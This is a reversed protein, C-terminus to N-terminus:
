STRRMIFYTVAIYAVLWSALISAITLPANINSNIFLLGTLLAAIIFGSNIFGLWRNATNSTMNNFNVRAEVATDVYELHNILLTWLSLIYNRDANLKSFNDDIGFGKILENVTRGANLNELYSEKRVICDIAQEVKAWSEAADKKVLDLNLYANNILESNPEHELLHIVEKTGNHYSEMKNMMDFLFHSTIVSFALLDVVGEVQPTFHGSMYMFSDSTYIATKKLYVRLGSFKLVDYDKVAHERGTVAATFYNIPLIGESIQVYTVNHFNKIAKELIFEKAKAYFDSVSKEVNEDPISARLSYLGDNDLSFTLNKYGRFEKVTFSIANDFKINSLEFGLGRSNIKSAIEAVHVYSRPIWGFVKVIM